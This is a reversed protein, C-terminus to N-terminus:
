WLTKGLNGYGIVGVRRRKEHEPKADRTLCDSMKLNKLHCNRVLFEPVFLTILLLITLSQIKDVFRVRAEPSRILISELDFILRSRKQM